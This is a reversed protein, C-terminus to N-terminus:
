YGADHEMERQYEAYQELVSAVGGGLLSAVSDFHKGMSVVDIHTGGPRAAPVYKGKQKDWTRAYRFTDGRPDLAHISMLVTHTDAPLQEVNLKQLLEDLRQSLSQLSHGATHSLWTDVEARVLKPDADGDRRVCAAASRVCDKLHLELGHRYLTIMPMLHADNPGHEVWHEVLANGASVFGYGLGADDEFLGLVANHRRRGGPSVAAFPTSM